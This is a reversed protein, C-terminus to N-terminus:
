TRRERSRSRRATAVDLRARSPGPGAPPAGCIQGGERGHASEHAAELWGRSRPHVREDIVAATYEIRYYGLADTRAEGVVDDHRRDMDTARVRVHPLGHGTTQDTVRGAVIFRKPDASVAHRQRKAYADLRRAREAVVAEMASTRARYTANLNAMAQDRGAEVLGASERLRENGASQAPADGPSEAAARLDDVYGQVLAQLDFLPENTEM